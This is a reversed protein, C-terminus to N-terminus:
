LEASNKSARRSRAQPRRARFPLRSATDLGSGADAPEAFAIGLSGVAMGVYHRVPHFQDLARPMPPHEVGHNIIQAM